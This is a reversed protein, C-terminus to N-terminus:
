LKKLTTELIEKLDRNSTCILLKDMLSGVLEIDFEKVEVEKIKDEVSYKLCEKYLDTIETRYFKDVEMYGEVKKCSHLVTAHNFDMYKGLSEYGLNKNMSYALYAFAQRAEVVDRKRGKRFLRLPDVEYFDCVVKEIETLPVRM